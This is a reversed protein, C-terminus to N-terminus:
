SVAFVPFGTCRRHSFEIVEFATTSANSRSRGPSSMFGKSAADTHELTWEVSLQGIERDHPDRYACGCDHLDRGIAYDYNGYITSIGRAEIEACVEAPLDKDGFDALRRLLERTNM